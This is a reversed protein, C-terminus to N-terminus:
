AEDVLDTINRRRRVVMMAAGAGLLGVGLAVLAGTQLGTVPLGPEDDDGGGEGGNEPPESASVSPSPSVSPPASPSPTGPTGPCVHSLNFTAFETTEEITATGATLTWGAETFLYAHKYDGSGTAIIYGHWGPGSSEALPDAGHLNRADIVVPAAAEAFTLTLSVFNEAGGTSPLIFHWGDVNGALGDFPASCDQPADADAATTPVQADNINAPSDAYAPAATVLALVGGAAAAALPGLVRRGM